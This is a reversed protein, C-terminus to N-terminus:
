RQEGIGAFIKLSIFGVTAVAPQVNREKLCPIGLKVVDDLPDLRELNLLKGAVVAGSPDPSFFGGGGTDGNDFAGIFVLRVFPLRGHGGRAVGKEGVTVMNNELQRKFPAKYVPCTLPITSRLM